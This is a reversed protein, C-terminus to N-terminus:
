SKHRGEHRKLNGQYTFFMGCVDCKFPKEGTHRRAHRKLDSSEAFCKGCTDCQFSKELTHQRRHRILPNWHSFSEGCVECLLPKEGTHYRRHTILTNSQAFCKGCDECKFPTDRSHQVVHLKLYSRQQFGKGCVVCEFPKEGIHLTEHKKLYCGKSFCKGCVNCKFPRDDTQQPDHSKADTHSKLNGSTSCKESVDCKFRKDGIHARFDNNTSFVSHKGADCNTVNAEHAFGECKSSITQDNSDAFSEPFVEDEESSVEVKQEQQVRDVDFMDEDVESKVFVVSTPLPTDEVKIESKIEYSHDMCEAKMGTVELRSVKGEESSAKNEEIECTNSHAQLHLPDVEPEKKILDMEVRLFCKMRRQLYKWKRNRSFETWMSCIKM